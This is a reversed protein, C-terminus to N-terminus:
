RDLVRIEITKGLPESGKNGEYVLLDVYYEGPSLPAIDIMRRRRERTTTAQDSFVKSIPQSNGRGKRRFNITASFFTGEALGCVDYQIPITTGQLQPTTIQDLM